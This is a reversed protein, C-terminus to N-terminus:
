VPGIDFEDASDPASLGSNCCFGGIAILTDTPGVRIVLPKIVILNQVKDSRPVFFLGAVLTDCVTDAASRCNLGLQFLGQPNYYSVHGDIRRLTIATNLAFPTGGPRFERPGFLPCGAVLLLAVLAAAGLVRNLQMM